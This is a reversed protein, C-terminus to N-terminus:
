NVSIKKVHQRNNTTVHLLYIGKNLSEVNIEIINNLSNQIPTIQKGYLDSIWTQVNETSNINVKLVDKVPNPYVLFGDVNDIKSDVGLVNSADIVGLWIDSGGIVPSTKVGTGSPSNSTGCFILKTPDNPYEIIDGNDSGNGGLTYQELLEGEENFLVIWIDGSSGYRPSTKNGSAISESYASLVLKGNANKFLTGGYDVSNGGITKDWVITFTKDMKVVWADQHYVTGFSEETKNGSIGSYSTSTLYYNENTEYIIGWNDMDSGGFCKQRIINFNEDIEVLWIDILGYGNESKDGGIGDWSDISLLFNSNSVRKIDALEDYNTSGINKQNVIVGDSYKVEVIWSNSGGNMTVTKNGSVPSKSTCSM